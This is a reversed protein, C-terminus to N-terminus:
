PGPTAACDSSWRRLRDFPEDLRTKGLPSGLCSVGIGSDSLKAAALGAERDTLSGINKGDIQRLEVYRMDNQKLVAIQRDLEVAAEDAFGSLFFRTM